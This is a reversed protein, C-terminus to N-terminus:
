FDHIKNYKGHKLNKKRMEACVTITIVTDRPYM